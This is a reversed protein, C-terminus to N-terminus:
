PERGFNEALALTALDDWAAEDSSETTTTSASTDTTSSQADSYAGSLAGLVCATVGALVAGWIRERTWFAQARRAAQLPIEAVRAALAASAAHSPAHDLLADLSRAAQRLSAARPEVACLALAADRETKPWRAEDAGYADLLAEFRALTMPTADTM